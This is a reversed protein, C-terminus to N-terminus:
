LDSARKGFAVERRYATPSQGMVQRFSRNFSSPSEYGCKRAIDNMSYDTDSLLLCAHNIKTNRVYECYPIGVHKMFFRSLYSANYKLEASLGKLTCSKDIHNEVFIFIDRLLVTDKPAEDPVSVDLERYFLGCLLYLFGKVTPLDLDNRMTLFLESYLTPVDHLVVHRLKYLNLGDAISSILDGSFVCLLCVGRQDKGTSYSHIRNPRILILDGEKLDYIRNDVNITLEGELMFVMEFCRHMHLPFSHDYNKEFLFHSTRIGHEIEYFVTGM